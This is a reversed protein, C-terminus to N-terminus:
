QGDVAYQAEWAAANDGGDRDFMADNDSDFMIINDKRLAQRPNRSAERAHQRAAYNDPRLKRAVKIIGV